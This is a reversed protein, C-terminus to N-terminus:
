DTGFKQVSNLAIILIYDISLGFAMYLNVAAPQFCLWWMWLCLFPPITSILVFLGNLYIPRGVCFRAWRSTSLLEQNSEM